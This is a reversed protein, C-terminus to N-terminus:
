NNGHTEETLKPYTIINETGSGEASSTTIQANILHVRNKINNLGSGNKKSELDYGMGYDKIFIELKSPLDKIHLDIKRAKSHKLSNNLLEQIVRFLILSHKPDLVIEEAQHQYDIKVQDLKNIRNVELQLSEVLGFSEVNESIFIKSLNRIDQICEGIIENIEVLDQQLNPESKTMLQSNLMKAVSLKQGLDDHLERGINSLTQEQVERATSLIEKDFTNKQAVKSLLLQSKKKIFFLYVLVFMLVVMFFIITSYIILIEVNGFGM